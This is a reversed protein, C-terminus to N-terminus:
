NNVTNNTTLNFFYDWTMQCGSRTCDYEFYFNNYRSIKDYNEIVMKETSKHHDLLVVFNACKVLKIFYDSQPCYDVILVNKGIFNKTPNIGAKCGYKIKIPKFYNACWLSGIGDPCSKHYIIVDFDTPKNMQKNNNYIHEIRSLDNDTYENDNEHLDLDSDSNDTM